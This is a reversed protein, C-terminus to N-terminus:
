SARRVNIVWWFGRGVKMCTRSARVKSSIVLPSWAGSEVGGEDEVGELARTVAGGTDEAEGDAGSWFGRGVKRCTRSASVKFVVFPTWASSEVGGEDEVGDLARTVGTDEAEGGM